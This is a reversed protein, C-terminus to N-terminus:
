KAKECRSNMNKIGAIKKVNQKIARRKPRPISELYQQILKMELTTCSVLQHCCYDCGKHCTIQNYKLYEGTLDDMLSFVDRVFDVGKVDGHVSHLREVFEEKAEQYLVGDEESLKSVHLPNRDINFERFLLGKLGENNLADM